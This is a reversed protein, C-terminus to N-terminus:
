IFGRTSRRDVKANHQQQMQFAMSSASALSQLVASQESSRRTDGEM